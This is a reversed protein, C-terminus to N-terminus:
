KASPRSALVAPNRRPPRPGIRIAATGRMVPLRRIGHKEMLAVIQGLPADRMITVPDRSTIQHLTIM